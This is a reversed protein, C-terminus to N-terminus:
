DDIGRTPFGKAPTFTLRSRPPLLRVRREPLSYARRAPSLRQEFSGFRTIHLRGQASLTRIACLVAEVAASATNQTAGPGMYRQVRATLQKKNVKRSPM